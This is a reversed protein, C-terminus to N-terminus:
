LRLFPRMKAHGYHEIAALTNHTRCLHRLNEPAHGGGKAFPRIHDFQLGSKSKCRRKSLPDVFECRDNSRLRVITRDKMPIYRSTAEPNITKSNQRLQVNPAGLPARSAKPARRKVYEQMATRFVEQFALAPNGKLDKVNQALELFEQDVEITIRTRESTIARVHESKRPATSQALLVREVERSAKGSVERLLSVTEEIQLRERKSHAGLKAATTLTLKGSQLEEKVEPVRVMLRMASVREYAQSESYDLAKCVYEWLSSYGRIAYLRRRDIEALHELLILTATKENAAAQLTENHLLDNPISILSKM